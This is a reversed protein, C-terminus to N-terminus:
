QLQAQIKSTIEAISLDMRVSMLIAVVLITATLIHVGNRMIEAGESSEIAELEDQDLSYSM